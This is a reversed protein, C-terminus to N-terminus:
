EVRDAPEGPPTRGDMGAPGRLRLASFTWAVVRREGGPRCLHTEQQLPGQGRRLARLLGRLEAAEGPEALLDGLFRGRLERARRGLLGQAAPNARLLRGQPDLVVVCAAVTDLLIRSFGQARQLAEAARRRRVVERQLERNAAELHATREQVRRELEERARRLAQEARKREVAYRVARGVLAGDGQGKVLYDQAGQRVAEIATAEDALGSLVVVPVAPAAELVRRLTDLGSSEPLSLDLLVADYAESRLRVLAPALRELHEVRFAGGSEALALRILRADGPHDEVLLLRLPARPDM